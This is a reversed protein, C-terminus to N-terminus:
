AVEERVKTDRSKPVKRKQGKVKESSQEGTTGKKKVGVGEKLKRKSDSALFWTEGEDRYYYSQRSPSERVGWHCSYIEKVTTNTGRTENGRTRNRRTRQGGSPRDTGALTRGKVRIFLARRREKKKTFDRLHDPEQRRPEGAEKKSSRRTLHTSTQRKV